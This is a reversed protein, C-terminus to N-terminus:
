ILVQRGGRVRAVALDKVSLGNHDEPTITFIGTIGIADRTAELAERLGARDAGAIELARAFLVLADYANGGIASAVQGFREQYRKAYALLVPRQPDSAPLQDAVSLKTTVLVAGEAAGAALEIFAPSSAAGADHVMQVDGSLGLEAANKAVISAAPPIAWVVVAKSGLSRVKTLQAKMDTDTAGFKEWGVVEVGAGGAQREFEARGTDGYANNVSLFAVRALNREKLFGLMKTVVDSTNVPTKFIWRREAPPKIIRDSSGMSVLPVQQQTVYPLMPMTTPTTGAGIIGLVGDQEVLRKALILSNTEKSENDYVVLHVPIGGVGGRANIEDALMVLSNRQPLGWISAPGSLELVAGLKYTKAGQAGLRRPGGLTAGLGGAVWAAARLWDRRTLPMMATGKSMM